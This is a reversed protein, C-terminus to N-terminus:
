KGICFQSFVADLVEERVGAGGVEGLAALAERLGVSWCDPPAGAEADGGARKLAASARNLAEAQRANVLAAHGGPPVTPLGVAAALAAGLEPLGQRTVASVSVVSAFAPGDAALSVPPSSLTSGDKKEAEVDRKNAVLVAPPPPASSSSSSKRSLAQRVGALAEEDKSTWGKSSDFVLAVVDAGAAAEAARAIGLAEIRAADLAASVSASSSSGSSSNSSSAEAAKIADRVGATDLLTVPVGGPLLGPADVVDRTTGAVESVIAREHGCLANLLSSKGVNPAGVLAVSVGRRMAAGLARTALAADIEAKISAIEAISAGDIDPVGDNDDGYDLSAEVRALLSVCRARARSAAAGASSPSSSTPSTSSSSSSDALGLGALAADAAAPSKASVVDAVAEAQDLSLRGSLFARLTFEGPRALRVTGCFRGGGGGDGDGGGGDGDDFDDFNAAAASLLAELVRPACTPGGHAHVDVVDERTYSRPGRMTIVLVEDILVGGRQEEESLFAGYSVSHSKAKWRRGNGPRFLRSVLRLALPGSVRVVAVASPAPSTALAVITDGDGTSPGRPFPPSSTSSPSSPSTEATAAEATPMKAGENRFRITNRIGQGRRSTSLSVTRLQQRRPLAFLPTASARLRHRSGSRAPMSLHPLRSSSSSSTSSSSAEAM